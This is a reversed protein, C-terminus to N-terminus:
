RGEAIREALVEPLGAARIKQQTTAIDYEVRRFIVTSTSLDYIVYCARWDGDRPQGVSGTNIFYKMGPEIVVSVEYQTDRWHKPSHANGSWALAFGAGGTFAINGDVVLIKRHTRNNSYRPRLINVPHYFHLEVGAERMLRVNDKGAKASGVDDLIMKVPVGARAKAALAKSFERTVPADVFAFTEFTISRRASKVAALM